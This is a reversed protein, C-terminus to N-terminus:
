GGLREILDAINDTISDVQNEFDDSGPFSGGDTVPLVGNLVVDGALSNGKTARGLNKQLLVMDRLTPGLKGRLKSFGDLVPGLDRLVAALHDTTALTVSLTKDSAATVRKLTNTLRGTQRSLVDFAAPYEDLLTDISGTRASVVKSVSNASDLVRDIENTRANLTRVTKRLEGLLHPIRKGGNDFAANLETTIGQLRQLGGGNILTTAAALSDEVTAATSTDVLGITAGDPLKPGTLKGGPPDVAVFVDGLPTPQRLQATTGKPLRVDTTISMKVHAVYDRTVIEDVSGIDVGGLRVHAKYPLNLADAFVAKLQYTPGDVGGGPLPLDEVTMSCGSLLVTAATTVAALRTRTTM